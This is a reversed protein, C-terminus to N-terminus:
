GHLERYGAQAASHLPVGATNILTEPSLFQVGASSAPVLESAREVLLQVTSRALADALDRRCLLLNAVGLTWVAPADGYTGAPILVRDYFFGSLTRTPQILDSLDLLRLQVEDATGVIPATPVGGSQIMVDISGDKLAALGESLGLNVQRVPGPAAGGALGAAALIRDATLSTGSGVEGVGATRGALQAVSRIGSDERVICHVYNEYVKGLAVLDKGDQSAAEQGAAARVAADALAVAFTAEGSLVRRINDLSGGTILTETSSAVGERQLLGALLTAFELYFGGTEGGAVTVKGAQDVATCASAGVASLGAALGVALLKRRTLQPDRM